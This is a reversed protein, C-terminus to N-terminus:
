RFTKVPRSPQLGGLAETLAEYRLSGSRRVSVSGENDTPHKRTRRYRAAADPIDSILRGFAKARQASNVEIVLKRGRIYVM